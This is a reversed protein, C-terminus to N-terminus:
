NPKILLVPGVTSPDVVGHIKSTAMLAGNMDLLQYTVIVDGGGFQELCRDVGRVNPRTCPAVRTM